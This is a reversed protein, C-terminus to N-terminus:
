FVEIKSYTYNKKIYIWLHLYDLFFLFILVLKPINESSTPKLECPNKNLYKTVQDKILFHFIIIEKDKAM